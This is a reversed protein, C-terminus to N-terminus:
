LRRIIRLPVIVPRRSLPLIVARNRKAWAPMASKINGPTDHDGLLLLLPVAVQYDPEEHLCLTTATDEKQPLNLHNKLANKVLM